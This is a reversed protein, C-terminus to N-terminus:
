VCLHIKEIHIHTSKANTRETKKEEEEEKEEEEKEEEEERSFSLFCLVKEVPFQDRQSSFSSPGSM